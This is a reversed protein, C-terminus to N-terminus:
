NIMCMAEDVRRRWCRHDDWALRWAPGKGMGLLKWCSANVQGLWLSVSRLHKMSKTFWSASNEVSMDAM